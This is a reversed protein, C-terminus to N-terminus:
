RVRTPVTSPEWLPPSAAIADRLTAFRQRGALARTVVAVAFRVLRDRLYAVNAPGHENESHPGRVFVLEARHGARRYADFSALPGQWEDWVGQGIFTAPWDGLGALPESTPRYVVHNVEAQAAAYILEGPEVYPLGWQASLLLAGRVNRHGWPEACPRGPTDLACWRHLNADMAWQTAYAGQSAGGLLIPMTRARDPAGLIRRVADRGARTAQREAAAIGERYPARGFYAPRRIDGLDVREASADVAGTPDVVGTARFQGPQYGAVDSLAACPPEARCRDLERLSAAFSFERVRYDRSINRTVIVRRAYAEPDTRVSEWRRWVEVVAVQALDDAEAASGCVLYAFRRLSDLRTRAFEDAGDDDASM